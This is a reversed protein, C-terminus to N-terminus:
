LGKGGRRSQFTGPQRRFPPRRWQWSAAAPVPSMREATSM